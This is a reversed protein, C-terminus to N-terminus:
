KDITTGGEDDPSPGLCILFGFFSGIFIPVSFLIYPLTFDAAAHGWQIPTISALLSAAWFCPVWLLVIYLVFLAVSKGSRGASRLMARGVLYCGIGYTSFTLVTAVLFSSEM